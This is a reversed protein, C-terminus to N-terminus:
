EVDQEVVFFKPSYYSSEETSSNIVDMREKVFVDAKDKSAFVKFVDVQHDEYDMGNDYYVIFVKQLM